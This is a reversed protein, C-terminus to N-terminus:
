EWFKRQSATPLQLSKRYKTITRRECLIGQSIMHLSLAKDSLPKKKDEKKILDHLINKAKQNSIKGMNTAIASSFFDRIKIIGRPCTLYKGSIARTITSESLNLFLAADKMTMPNPASTLGELFDGQMKIIYLALSTLIKKRRHLTRLLWKVSSLHRRVFRTEEITFLHDKLSNQYFPQIRFTPLEDGNMQIEWAEERKEIFLDPILTHNEDSLFQHGPFPTLSKIDLQITERLKKISIGMKKAILHARNHILEDYYEALIKYALTNEKSQFKLQTLLCEKVNKAGLGVPEIQQIIELIQHIFPISVQKAEAIEEYSMTLFGKQDLSGAIYSALEIEESKAFYDPIEKILYQYLTCQVKEDVHSSILPRPCKAVIELVPNKEIEAELWKSLEYIPMQLVAFARQMAYGMILQQNQKYTQKM